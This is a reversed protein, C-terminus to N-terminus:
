LPMNGHKRFTGLAKRKKDILLYTSILIKRTEEPLIVDDILGKEASLLPSSQAQDDKTSGSEKNQLVSSAGSSGMVAIKASPWAFVFDAGIAKSNMAVFAGGYAKRLIVTVKPVTAEVFAYIIKAGHRLLGRNEQESGPIFGSVDELVLLPINFCDCFRVFRACKDSADIDICGALHIPNNAIVGVSKGNLRIFGTVLNRAFSKGMEFFSQQDAICDIVDKVNYVSRDDLPLCTSIEKPNEQLSLKKQLNMPLYSLFQAVQQFAETETQAVFHAVGSKHAHVRYGGLEEVSVEEGSIAQLVKPGTIFLQSIEEVMFIADTLAPSYAAGGACPGLIISLQPILGSYRANRKFLEGYGNLADIGEQIRAGGSDILGIIPTNMEVALDMIACIKKAHAMGLTGGFVTFDQAYLCVDMQNIKGFGTIVGDGPLGNAGVAFRQHEVFSDRDLLQNIRERASMKGLAHQKQLRAEGGGQGIRKLREQFASNGDKQNM